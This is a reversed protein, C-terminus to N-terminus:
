GACRSETGGPCSAMGEAMVETGASPAQPMGALSRLERLAAGTQEPALAVQERLALPATQHNLGLALLTMDHSSQRIRITPTLGM